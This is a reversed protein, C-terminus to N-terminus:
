EETQTMRLSRGCQNESNKQLMLSWTVVASAPEIGCERNGESESILKDLTFM